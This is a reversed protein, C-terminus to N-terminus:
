RDFTISQTENKRLVFDGRVTKSLREDQTTVAIHTDFLVTGSSVTLGKLPISVKGDSDTKMQIATRFGKLDNAILTSDLMDAGEVRNAAGFTGKIVIQITTNALAHVQPRGSSNDLLRPELVMTSNGNRDVNVNAATVILRQEAHGAACISLMSLLAILRFKFM